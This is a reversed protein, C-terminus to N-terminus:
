DGKDDPSQIGYKRMMVFEAVRWSLDKMQNLPYKERYFQFNKEHKRLEMINSYNQYAERIIQSSENIRISNIYLVEAVLGTLSALPIFGWLLLKTGIKM